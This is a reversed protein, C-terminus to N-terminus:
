LFVRCDNMTTRQSEMLHRIARIFMPKVMIDQQTRDLIPAGRRYRQVTQKKAGLVTLNPSM